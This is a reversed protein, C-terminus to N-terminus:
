KTSKKIKLIAIYALLLVSACLAASYMPVSYLEGTQPSKESTDPEGEQPKSPQPASDPEAPKESIVTVRNQSTKYQEGIVGGLHENIYVELLEVDLMGSNSIIESDNLMTAGSGHDLLLYNHSALTYFKSADIAEYEGSESNLVKVDSVRRQGEVSEFAMNEDYKVSSPIYANLTYTLGSVHQFSGNEEPYFDVSLELFDLIQQGTVKAVCVTNNFPYVSLIDNFTVEGKSLEARIGGGNIVGIDAGTVVRFADACFDGLNTQTHRVLRNGNEDAFLLDFKNEGIVRNGLTAYEETIEAIYADIGADTKTYTETPILETTIEGESITLKGINMFKTGTSSVVVKDGSKDEIIMNEVVSHSHGDLVADFGSTNKVLTTVSWQEFVNESGLHALGVVYDAGKEKASDVAKQVTACLDDGSFGYIYKGNEDMFQAPSSSTLTDPTTIGIYAVDVDGYSKIVYPEFVPTEEGSKYFNSCVPKTDLIDCLELLRDFKYDFEHNGLAIADYGVMNMINAIYGGQSIAGFTDGQVFDGMSVVGVYGNDTLLENKLSLLKSYGEIACHVDNEYLIVIEDGDESANVFTASMASFIMLLSLVLSLTKKLKEPAFFMHMKM